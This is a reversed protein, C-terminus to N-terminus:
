ISPHIIIIGGMNNHATCQYYLTNPANFPVEFILTGNSVDNNTVGNNYITGTSGNSTSQIRFPHADMTNVFHYVQGRALYITPDNTTVTLGIGAFTYHNTGSAGLAFSNIAGSFSTATLVGSVNIGTANITVGLGLTPTGSSKLSGDLTGSFTTATCIGTVVVGTSTTEIKASGGVQLELNGTGADNIISKAGSHYIELDSSDGFTVRSNDKLIFSNVSPNWTVSTVGSATGDLTVAVNGVDVAGAFTSIGASVDLGGATIDIGGATVKIGTQATIIGVSDVSKVDEYTLTGAISVNGGVFLSKAIGVGGSIIVAGTTSSTSETTNSFTTASVVESTSVKGFTGVGTINLGGSGTLGYGVPLEAGYVLVPAGTAARDLFKDARVRSM